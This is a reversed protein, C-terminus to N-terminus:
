EFSAKNEKIRQAIDEVTLDNEVAPLEVFMNLDKPVAFPDVSRHEPKM